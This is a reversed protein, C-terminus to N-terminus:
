DLNELPRIDLGKKFKVRVVPHIVYGLGNDIVVSRDLLGPRGVM